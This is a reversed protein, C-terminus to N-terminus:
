VFMLGIKYVSDGLEHCWRVIGKRNLERSESMITIEQGEDLPNYSYLGLGTESIDTIIGRFIKDTTQNPLVYIIEQQLEYRVHARRSHSLTNGKMSRVLIAV